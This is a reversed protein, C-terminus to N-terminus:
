RIKNAFSKKQQQNKNTKIPIDPLVADSLIFFALPCIIVSLIACETLSVGLFIM